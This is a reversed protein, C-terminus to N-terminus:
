RASNGGSKALEVGPMLRKPTLWEKRLRLFRVGGAPNPLSAPHHADHTGSPGPHVAQRLTSLGSRRGEPPDTTPVPRRSPEPQVQQLSWDRAGPRHSPGVWLRDGDARADATLRGREDTLAPPM